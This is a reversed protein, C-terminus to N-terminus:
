DWKDMRWILADLEYHHKKSLVVPEGNVHWTHDNYKLNPKRELKWDGTVVNHYGTWGISCKSANGWDKHLTMLKKRISTYSWKKVKM